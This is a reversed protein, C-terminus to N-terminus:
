QRRVTRLLRLFETRENSGLGAYALHIIANSARARERTFPFPTEAGVAWFFDPQTGEVTDPLQFFATDGATVRKSGKAEFVYFTFGASDVVEMPALYFDNLVALARLKDGKKRLIIGTSIQAAYFNPLTPTFQCTLYVELDPPEGEETSARGAGTYSDEAGTLCGSPPPFFLYFLFNPLSMPSDKPSHMQTDLWYEDRGVLPNNSAALLLVSADQADELLLVETFHVPPASGALLEPPSDIDSKTTIWTGPVAISVGSPLSYIAEEQPRPSAKPAAFSITFIAAALLGWIRYTGLFQV